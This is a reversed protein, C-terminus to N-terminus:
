IGKLNQTFEWEAIKMTRHDIIRDHHGMDDVVVWMRDVTRSRRIVTVEIWGARTSNWMIREGVKYDPPYPGLNTM